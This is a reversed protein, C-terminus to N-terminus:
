TQPAPAGHAPPPRRYGKTSPKVVQGVGGSYSSYGDTRPFDLTWQGSKDPGSGGSLVAVGIAAHGQESTALFFLYDQNTGLTGPAFVTSHEDPAPTVSLASKNVSVGGPGLVIQHTDFSGSPCSGSGGANNSNCVWISVIPSPHQAQVRGAACVLLVAFIKLKQAGNM